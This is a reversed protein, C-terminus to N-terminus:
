FGVLLIYKWANYWRSSLSDTLTPLLNKKWKVRSQPKVMPKKPFLMIFINMFYRKQPGWFINESSFGVLLTYKWAYCWRSSLSDTLITLINKEMKGSKTAEGNAKLYCAYHFYEHFVKKPTMLIYKRKLFWCAFYIKL